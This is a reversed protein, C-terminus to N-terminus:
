IGIELTYLYDFKVRLVGSNLLAMWLCDIQASFYVSSSIPLFTYSYVCSISPTLLTFVAAGLLSPWPFHPYKCNLKFYKASFAVYTCPFHTYLCPSSSVYTGSIVQYLSNGSYFYGLM